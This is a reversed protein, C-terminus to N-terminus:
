RDSPGLICACQLPEKKLPLVQLYKTYYLDNLPKDYEHYETMSMNIDWKGCM